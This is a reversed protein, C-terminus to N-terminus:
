TDVSTILNFVLVYGRGVKLPLYRNVLQSLNDPNEENSFLYTGNSNEEACLRCYISDCLKTPEM